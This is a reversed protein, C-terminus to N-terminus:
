RFLAAMKDLCQEMGAKSMDVVQQSTYGTETVTVETKYAGPSRFVIIHPVDRNLEPPMGMTSPDIRKGDKDAFALLYEIRENPVIKEYSWTNYIEMGYGSMCVLSTGGERFDMKVVPATFGQPGWWKKVQEGDAFANWVKEIPADFVRTIVMDIKATDIMHIKIQNTHLMSHASSNIMLTFLFLQLLYNKKM